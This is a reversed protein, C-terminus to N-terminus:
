AMISGLEKENGIEVKDLDEIESLDDELEEATGAQVHLEALHALNNRHQELLDESINAIREDIGHVQKTQLSCEFLPRAVEWFEVAKLPDGHGMSIDGLRLMCEARSRHIDM